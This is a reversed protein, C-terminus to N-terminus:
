SLNVYKDFIQKISTVPGASAASDRKTHLSRLLRSAKAPAAARFAGFPEPVLVGRAM